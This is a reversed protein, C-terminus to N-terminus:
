GIIIRSQQMIGVGSLGGGNIGGIRIGDGASQALAAPREGVYEHGMMVAVVGGTDWRQFLLRTGRDM